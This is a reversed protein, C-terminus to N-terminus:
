PQNLQAQIQLQFEHEARQAWGNLADWPRRRPSENLGALIQAARGAADNLIEAISRDGASVIVSLTVQEIVPSLRNELTVEARYFTASNETAEPVLRISVLNTAISYTM